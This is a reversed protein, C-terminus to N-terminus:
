HCLRNSRSLRGPPLPSPFPRMAIRLLQVPSGMDSLPMRLALRRGRPVYQMALPGAHGPRRRVDHPSPTGGPFLDCRARIVKVFGGRQLSAAQEAERLCCSRSELAPDAAACAPWAQNWARATCAGHPGSRRQMTSATGGTKAIRVRLPRLESYQRFSGSMSSLSSPQRDM